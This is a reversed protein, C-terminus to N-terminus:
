RALRHETVREPPHAISSDDVAFAVEAGVVALGGVAQYAVRLLVLDERHDVAGLRTEVGAFHEVARWVPDRDAGGKRIRDSQRPANGVEEDESHRGRAAHERGDLTAHHELSDSSPHVDDVAQMLEQVVVRLERCRCHRVVHRDDVHSAWALLLIQPHEAAVDGGHGTRADGHQTGVTRNALAGSRRDERLGEVILPDLRDKDARPLGAQYLTSAVAHREVGDRALEARALHLCGHHLGEFALM